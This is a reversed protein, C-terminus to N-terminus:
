TQTERSEDDENEEQMVVIKMDLGLKHLMIFAMDLPIRVKYDLYGQVTNRSINLCKAFAKRSIKKGKMRANIASIVDFWITKSDDM